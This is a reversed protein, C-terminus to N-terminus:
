LVTCSFRPEQKAKLDRSECLHGIIMLKTRTKIMLSHKIRIMKLYKRSYQSAVKKLVPICNIIAPCLFWSLSSIIFLDDKLRMNRAM